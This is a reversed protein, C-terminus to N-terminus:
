LLADTGGNVLLSLLLDLLIIGVATGASVGLGHRAIFWGYMIFASTTLLFLLAVLGQPLLGVAQVISLPLLVAAVVLQFWNYPVMYHYFRDFCGLMRSVTIMVTPMVLWGLAFGVTELGLFRLWHADQETGAFYLMSQILYFPLTLFAVIFSNWFGDVSLNFSEIGRADLRLLRNLGWLSSATESVSPVAM